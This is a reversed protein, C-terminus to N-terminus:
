IGGGASHATIPVALYNWGDRADLLRYNNNEFQGPFFVVLRGRIDNEVLRLVSSLRTFGFLSGAGFVAVVSSDNVNSDNLVHRIRSAVEEAFEANLKLQLAEPADFYEDRYEDKAIWTSFADTVEIEHWDHGADRTAMEFLAKRARLMRELEKDYTIMVVRQAGALTRPWPTAIHKAYQEALDEIRGM